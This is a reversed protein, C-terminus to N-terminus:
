AGRLCAITAQLTEPNHYTIRAAQQAQLLQEGAAAVALARETTGDFQDRAARYNRYALEAANRLAIQRSNPRRAM